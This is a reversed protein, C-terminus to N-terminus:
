ETEALCEDILKKLKLIEKRNSITALYKLKGRFKTGIWLYDCLHPRDVVIREDSGDNDTLVMKAM